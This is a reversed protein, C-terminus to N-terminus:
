EQMNLTLQYTSGRRRLAILQKRSLRDVAFFLESWTIDPEGITLVEDMMMVRHQQLMMLIAQETEGHRVVM